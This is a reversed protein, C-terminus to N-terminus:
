YYMVTPAFMWTCIYIYIKFKIIIFYLYKYKYLINKNILYTKFFDLKLLFKLYNIRQDTRIHSILEWFKIIKM